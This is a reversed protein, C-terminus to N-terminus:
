PSHANNGHRYSFVPRISESAVGPEAEGETDILRLEQIDNGGYLSQKELRCPVISSLSTPTDDRRGGRAARLEAVDERMEILAAALEAVVAHLRASEAALTAAPKAARRLTEARM